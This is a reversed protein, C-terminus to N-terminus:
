ADEISDTPQARRGHRSASGCPVRAEGTAPGVHTRQGDSSRSGHLNENDIHWPSAPTRTSFAGDAEQPDTAIRLSPSRAPPPEPPPLDTRDKGRVRYSEGKLYYVDGHHMLRDVLAAALASDHLVRGWETLSKNSTVITAKKEYRTAIVEYLLPGIEPDAPLYGFEDLVLLDSQIYPKLVKARGDLGGARLVRTLLAQTTTFRVLYGRKLQALALSIALHTKGLGAPGILVLSRGQTIFRDDLYRVIVQRNLEPRLRFDFEDLTKEFPFAAEKLRRRYQNDERALLEEELLGRLFDTYPMQEAAARDLWEQHIERIRALKLQTLMQHMLGGERAPRVGRLEGSRSRRRGPGAAGPPRAGARPRGPRAPVRRRDGRPRPGAGRHEAARGPRGHRAVRRPRRDRRGHARAAAPL